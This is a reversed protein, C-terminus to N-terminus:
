LKLNLVEFLIRVNVYHCKLATDAETGISEISYRYTTSDYTSVVNDFLKDAERELENLRITNSENDRLDPVCFNVEAFSKKWFKGPQQKKTHIVIRESKLEGTLTEGVPVIDIGFTKCDRYLINGIDTTVIM